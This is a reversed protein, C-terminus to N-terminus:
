SHMAGSIASLRWLPRNQALKVTETWTLKHSDLDNQVTKM